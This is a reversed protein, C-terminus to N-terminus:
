SLENELEIRRARKSTMTSDLATSNDIQNTSKRKQSFVSNFREWHLTRLIDQEVKRRANLLLIRERLKMNKSKLKIESLKYLYNDMTKSCFSCIIIYYLSFECYIYAGGM